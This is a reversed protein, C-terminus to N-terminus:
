VARSYLKETDLPEYTVQAAQGDSTVDEVVQTEIVVYGVRDTGHFFEVEVLQQGLEQGILTFTITESDNSFPIEMKQWRKDIIEFSEASIMVVIEIKGKKTEESTPTIKIESPEQPKPMDPLIDEKLKIPKITLQITLMVPQHIKCQEPFRIDTFRRFTHHQIEGWEIWEIAKVLLNGVIIAKEGMETLVNKANTLREVLKPKDPKDKKVQIETAKLEALAEEKPEEPIDDAQQLEQQLLALLTVIEEKSLDSPQTTIIHQAHDHFSDGTKVTAHESVHEFYDHGAIRKGGITVEEGLLYNETNSCRIDDEVRPEDEKFLGAEIGCLLLSLANKASVARFREKASDEILEKREDAFDSIGHIAIVRPAPTCLQMADYVGASEMEMAVVKRDVEQKIWEVFAKGKGVAPGSALKRDDGAFLRIEPRIDWGANTMAEQIKGEILPAFRAACDKSWKEYFTKQTHQFMQFRNLLRRSTPLDNGSTEFMWTKGKGKTASNALYENTSDPIFVDGPQLDKSLSGAIGLVVVDCAQSKSLIASTVAVARTNGMKGAPVVALQFDRNLVPSFVKGCFITIAIDVLEQPVFADGVEEILKDSLHNFEESLAIYLLVDIQSIDLSM